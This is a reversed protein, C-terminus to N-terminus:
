HRENDVATLFASLVTSSYNNDAVKLYVIERSYGDIGGHIIIKWQILKHHGDVHWLSNPGPVSYKGRHFARRRYVCHFM